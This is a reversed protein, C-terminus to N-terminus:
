LPFLFRVFDTIVPISKDFEVDSRILFNEPLRLGLKGAHLECQSRHRALVSEIASNQAAADRFEDVLRHVPRTTRSYQETRTSDNVHRDEEFGGLIPLRPASEKRVTTVESPM